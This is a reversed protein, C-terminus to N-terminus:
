PSTSATRYVVRQLKEHIRDLSSSVRQIRDTSPASAISVLLVALELRMGTLEQGFDDHLEAAIRKRETEILVDLHAALRRLERTQGAVRGELEDCLAALEARQADITQRGSWAEYAM